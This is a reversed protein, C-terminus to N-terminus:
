SATARRYYTVGDRQLPEARGQQVLLDVHALVESVALFNDFGELSPFLEGALQWGSKGEDDLMGGLQEVRRAHHGRMREILEAPREISPGHGPHVVSLPMAALRDLSALYEVLSRRREAPDRPDPELLPNPSVDLLLTDGSFLTGSPEHWLCVHGATHGPLHLVDLAFSGLDIREGGNLPEVGDVRPRLDGMRSEREGMGLLTEMPMGAELLLRGTAVLMSRDGLKPVDHRGVLVRCGSLERLRPALGYHDPHGHSVVILEVDRPALGIRDLGSLLARETAPTNPGCDFLAVTDGFLVYVNAPGVAYPTPVVIRESRPRDVSGSTVDPV